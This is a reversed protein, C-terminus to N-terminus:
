GELKFSKEFFETVKQYDQEVGDGNEYMLGLNFCALADGSECAKQDNEISNKM